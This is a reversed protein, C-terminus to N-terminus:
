KITLRAVQWVSQAYRIETSLEPNDTFPFIVWLPGKDRVSMYEGERKYALIITYKKLDAVPIDSAYDNLAAFVATEGSAKVTALLDSLKVGQYSVPGKEWPNATKVETRPLAELAAMDFEAVQDKTCAGIAGTVTLVVDGQPPAIECARAAVSAGIGMALTLVAALLLRKM